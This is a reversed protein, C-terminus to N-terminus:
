FNLMRITFYKEMLEKYSDKIKCIDEVDETVPLSKRYDEIYDIIKVYYITLMKCLPVMDLKRNKKNVKVLEEEFCIEYLQKKENNTVFIELSEIVELIKKLEKVRRKDKKNEVIQKQILTAADIQVTMLANVLNIANEMKWFGKLDFPINIESEDLIERVELNAKYLQFLFCIPIVYMRRKSKWILQTYSGLTDSDFNIIKYQKNISLEKSRLAELFAKFYEKSMAGEEEIKKQVKEELNGLQNQFNQLAKQTVEFKAINNM